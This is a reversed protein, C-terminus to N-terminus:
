FGIDYFEVSSKLKTEVFVRNSEWGSQPCHAYPGRNVRVILRDSHSYGENCPMGSFTVLVYSVKLNDYETYM